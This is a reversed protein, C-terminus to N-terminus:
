IYRFQLLQVKTVVDSNQAQQSFDRTRMRLLVVGVGIFFLKASDM